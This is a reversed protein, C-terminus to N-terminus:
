IACRYTYIPYTYRMWLPAPTMKLVGASPRVPRLYGGRVRESTGSSPRAGSGAPHHGPGVTPWGAGGAFPSSGPGRRLERLRLPAGLPTM